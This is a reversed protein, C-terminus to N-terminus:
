EVNRGMEPSRLAADALEAAAANMARENRERARKYVLNPVQPSKRRLEYLQDQWLLLDEPDVNREARGRILREMDDAMSRRTAGARKTSVYQDWVDLLAPLLPLAVGLLFAPLSLNVILSVIVATGVWLLTAVLWVNANANLLRESYAANARQAIAIAPTGNLRPDFPYWGKLEEKEAQAYVTDDDGTLSAVEEITVSPARSVKEPMGFVWHDFHEQIAAAKAALKQEATSFWTRSLFIWVGALAGVWVASGPFIVTAIPAAVGIVSLGLWRLFSWRKARNYLKRQALLLRLARLDDQAALMSTTTPPRYVPLSAMFRDTRPLLFLIM